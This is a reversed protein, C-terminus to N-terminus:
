AAAVPMLVDSGSEVLWDAIAERTMRREDNLTIVEGLVGHENTFEVPLERPGTVDYGAAELAAGLACTAGVQRAREMNDTCNGVPCDRFHAPTEYYDGFAQPRKAAGEHILESLLRQATM